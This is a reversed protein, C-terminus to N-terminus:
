KGNMLRRILEKDEESLPKGEYTFIVDNDALDATRPTPTSKEDTDFGLLWQEPVNLGKALIYLKDSRPEAKDNVYQSLDTKSIKVKDTFFPKCLEIIDVQKLGREQMIQRLRQGVTKREM